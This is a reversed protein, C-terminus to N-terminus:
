QPATERPVNYDEDLLGPIPVGLTAFEDLARSALRRIESLRPDTRIGEDTLALWPEDAPIDALQRDLAQLAQYVAETADRAKDSILGAQSLGPLLGYEWEMFGIVLEIRPPHERLFELQEDAPSALLVLGEV